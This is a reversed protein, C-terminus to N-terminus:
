CVPTGTPILAVPLPLATLQLEGGAHDTGSGSVATLQGNVILFDGSFALATANTELHMGVTTTGGLPHPASIPTSRITTFTQITTSGARTVLDCAKVTMVHSHLGFTIDYAKGPALAHVTATQEVTASTVPALQVAALAFLTLVVAAKM